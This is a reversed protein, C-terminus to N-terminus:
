GKVFQVFQPGRNVIAVATGYSRGAVVIADNRIHGEHWRSYSSGASRRKWAWGLAQGAQPGLSVAREGAPSVSSQLSGIRPAARAMCSPIITAMLPRPPKWRAQSAVEGDATWRRRSRLCLSALGSATITRETVSAFAIASTLSAASRRSLEGSRGITSKGRLGPLGMARSTAGSLGSTPSM